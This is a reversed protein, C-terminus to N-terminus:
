EAKQQRLTLSANVMGATELAVIKAEVVSLGDTKQSEDLWAVVGSFPAAPLQVRALDGSLAVNQANLGKRALAAQLNEQTMPPATAAASKGSLAQAEQALGQLTAAQERLAPLTQGLKARGSLAPEIGVAYLLGLVIVVAAATLLQRERANRMSWFLSWASWLAGIAQRGPIQANTMQREQNAM